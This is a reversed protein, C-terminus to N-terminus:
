KGFKWWTQKQKFKKNEVELQKNVMKLQNIENTLVAIEQVQRFYEEKTRSESDTLLKVQGVQEAYNILQNKSQILESVLSKYFSDNIVQENFQNNTKNVEPKNENVSKNVLTNNIIEDFMSDEIYIVKMDRNNVTENQMSIRNIKSDKEEDLLKNVKKWVAPVSIKLVESLEKATYKKM